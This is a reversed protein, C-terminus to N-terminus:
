KQGGVQDNKDVFFPEV